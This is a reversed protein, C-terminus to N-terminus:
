ESPVYLATELGGEPAAHSRPAMVPHLPLTFFFTSGTGIQSTVGIRGGHAEVIGKAVALGIGGGRRRDARWFLEFVRPLHDPRVGPGADEVWLRIADDQREAGLTVLGGRPGFKLANGILNLLVQLVRHRDISVAPVGPAVRTEIRADHSKAQPAIIKQAQVMLDALDVEERAISLRGAEITSVDSLDQLLREMEASAYAISEITAAHESAHPGRGLAAAAMSIGALPNGLDHSVLAVMEDRASIAKRAEAYLRANDVLLAAKSALEMAIKLDADGFLRGSDNTAALVLAGLTRGRARLPVTMMSRPALGAERHVTVAALTQTAADAAAADPLVCPEGIDDVSARADRALAELLPVRGPDRHALGLVHVAHADTGYALCYDAFAPVVCAALQRLGEHPDLSIAIQDGVRALTELHGRATEAVSRAEDARRYLQANDITIAAWSAIEKAFALDAEDYIRQSEASMLTLAGLTRGRAQLPLTIASHLRMDRLIQAFDADVRGQLLHDTIRPVLAPRGSSVVFAASDPREPPSPWRRFLEWMLATQDGDKHMIEVPRLRGGDDTVQVICWDALSPVVLRALKEIITEPSLTTALVRSANAMFASAEEARKRETIDRCIGLMHSPRGDRDTVVRGTGGLWRTAGDPRVIRYEIEYGSGPVALAADITASVREADDPHMDRRFAALTGDFAGPELGHIRELESSWKVVGSGVDWEWAGMHGATIALDLRRESAERLAADREAQQRLNRETLLRSDLEVAIRHHEFAFAVYDAIQEAIAVEADTFTHPERYYLMFKGLLRAGFQLPVFGIARIGELRLIPALDSLAPAQEVDSILLPTAATETIAWPSHGDVAHRYADSLGSSAVFRMTGASDFLLVAARQVDLAEKVGSLAADYIAQLSGARAADDMLRRLAIRSLM